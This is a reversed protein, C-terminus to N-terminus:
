SEDFPDAEDLVSPGREAISARCGSSGMENPRACRM